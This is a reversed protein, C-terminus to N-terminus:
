NGTGKGIVSLNRDLTLLSPGSPGFFDGAALSIVGGSGNIGRVSVSLVADPNVTLDGGTRVDIRGGSGDASGSSGGRAFLKSNADLIFPDTGGSRLYIEGGRGTGIADVLIDGGISLTGSQSELSM